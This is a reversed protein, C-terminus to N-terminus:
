NFDDLVNALKDSGLCYSNDDNLLPKKSITSNFKNEISKYISLDRKNM